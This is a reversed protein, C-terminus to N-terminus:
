KKLWIDLYMLEKNPYVVKYRNDDLFSKEIVPYMQLYENGKWEGNNDALPIIALNDNHFKKSDGIGLEWNCWKSAVANNTALLIFKRNEDIKKRINAATVGSTVQPMLGDNWDVYLSVPLNKFFTVGAEIMDRDLHSHSLFVSVTKFHKEDARADNLTASFTKTTMSMARSAFAEKTFYAM